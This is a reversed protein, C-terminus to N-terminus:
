SRQPGPRTECYFHDKWSQWKLKYKKEDLPTVTVGEEDEVYLTFCVNQNYEKERLVIEAAYIKGESFKSLDIGMLIREHQGADLTVATKNLVPQSPALQGDLDKLERVGVRYTKSTNCHNKIIFPVIIREGVMAKRSINSLCHPPCDNKSTCCDDSQLKFQPLKIPTNGALASQSLISFNNVLNDMLPKAFSLSMDTIQKLNDTLTQQLRASSNNEM